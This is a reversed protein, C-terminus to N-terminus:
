EWWQFVDSPKHGEALQEWGYECIRMFEDGCIRCKYRFGTLPINGEKDLPVGWSASDLRLIHWKNHFIKWYIKIKKKM